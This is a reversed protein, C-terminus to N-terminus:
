QEFYFFNTCCMNPVIDLNHHLVCLHPSAVTPDALLTPRSAEIKCTISGMDKDDGETDYYTEKCDDAFYISNSKICCGNNNNNTELSFSSNHGLLLARDGLNQVEMCIGCSLDVEFM